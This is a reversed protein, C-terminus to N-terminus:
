SAKDLESQLPEASWHPSQLEVTRFL